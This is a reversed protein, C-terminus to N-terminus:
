SLARSRVEEQCGEGGCKEGASMSHRINYVFNVTEYEFIFVRECNINRGIDINVVQPWFDFLQALVTREM